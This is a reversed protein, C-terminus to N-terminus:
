KKAKLAKIKDRLQAAEEYREERIAKDLQAQLQEIRSDLKMDRFIGSPVKGTHRINGHIRRLVPEVSDGFARYCNYCGFKGMQKFDEFELGCGDCKLRHTYPAERPAGPVLTLMESFFESIDFPSSFQGAAEACKECLYIEAKRGNVIQTLHVNAARQGCNQCLM